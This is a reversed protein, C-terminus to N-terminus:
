GGRHGTRFTKPAGSGSGRAPARAIIGYLMAPVQVDSAYLLRGSSKEAVDIRPVDNGLLRFQKM